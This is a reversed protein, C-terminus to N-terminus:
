YGWVDKLLLKYGDYLGNNAKEFGTLNLKTFLAQGEKSSSAKILANRIKDQTEKNVRDSASIAMHPIPDTVMITNVSSDGSILPTPILAASVKNSKLKQLTEQFNNTGIVVPQRSINPFMNLLRVGGISPSALTAIRQGILEDADFYNVNENTVLSYSVTDNIKALVTFKLNKVRYDAFHAADLM